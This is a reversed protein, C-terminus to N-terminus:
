GVVPMVQEFLSAVKELDIMLIVTHEAKIISRIIPHEAIEGQELLDYNEVGQVGDVLLGIKRGLSNAVVIMSNLRINQAAVECIQRLDLLPVVEGRYDIVGLVGPQLHPLETVAVMQIIESIKTVPLGYQQRGLRLVVISDM